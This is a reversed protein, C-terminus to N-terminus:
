FHHAATAGNPSLLNHHSVGRAGPAVHRPGEPAVLHSDIVSIRFVWLRPRHTRLRSPRLAGHRFLSTRPSGAPSVPNHVRNLVPLGLLDVANQPAQADHLM